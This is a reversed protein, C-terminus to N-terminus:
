EAAEAQQEAYRQRSDLIDDLHSLSWDVLPQLLPPLTRSLDTLVYEVRPPIEAYSQRRVLDDAELARLTAALMKQSVDPLAQCLEKFRLPQAAADLALLTLLTWRDGVRALVNRIPCQPFVPDIVQRRIM